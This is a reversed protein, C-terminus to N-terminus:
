IENSIQTTVMQSTTTQSYFCTQNIKFVSNANEGGCTENLNNSCTMNCSKGKSEATGYLGYTNGCYCESRNKLFNKKLKM